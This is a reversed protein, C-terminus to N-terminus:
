GIKGGHFHPYAAAKRAWRINNKKKPLVYWDSRKNTDNWIYDRNVGELWFPPAGGRKRRTKRRKKRRRGGKRGRTRRRRRKIEERELWERMEKEFDYPSPTKKSFRTEVECVVRKTM